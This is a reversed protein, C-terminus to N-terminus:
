GTKGMRGNEAFISTLTDLLIRSQAAASDFDGVAIFSWVLM